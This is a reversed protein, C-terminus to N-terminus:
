LYVNFLIKDYIGTECINSPNQIKDIKKNRFIAMKSKRIQTFKFNQSTCYFRSHAAVRIPPWKAMGWFSMKYVLSGGM